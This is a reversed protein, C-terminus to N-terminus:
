GFRFYAVIIGIVVAAAVIVGITPLWSSLTELAGLGNGTTNEAYGKLHITGNSSNGCREATGNWTGGLNRSCEAQALNKQVDGVVQAGIGITIAIIVFAIALPAMEQLTFAKKNMKM